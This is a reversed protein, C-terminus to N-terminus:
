WRNPLAESAHLLIELYKHYFDRFLDVNQRTSVLSQARQGEMRACAGAADESLRFLRALVPVFPIMAKEQYQPGNRDQTLIIRVIGNRSIWHSRKEQTKLVRLWDPNMSTKVHAIIVRFIVWIFSELDDLGSPFFIPSDDKAYAWRGLLRLSMCSITGSRELFVPGQKREQIIEDILIEQCM